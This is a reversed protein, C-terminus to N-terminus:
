SGSSTLMALEPVFRLMIADDSYPIGFGEALLASCDCVDKNSHVSESARQVETDLLALSLPSNKAELDLSLM